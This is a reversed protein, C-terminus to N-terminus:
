GNIKREITMLVKEVTAESIIEGDVKVFPAKMYTANKCLDLCTHAKVDVRNRYQPPIISEIDQLKSAGMVFCTTGFCLEVTIKGAEEM